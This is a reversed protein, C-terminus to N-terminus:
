LLVTIKEKALRIFAQALNWGATSYTHLANYHCLTTVSASQRYIETTIESGDVCQTM